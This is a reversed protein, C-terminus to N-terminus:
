LAANHQENHCRAKGKVSLEPEENLQTGMRGPASRYLGM